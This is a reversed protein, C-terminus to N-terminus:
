LKLQLEKDLDENKLEEKGKTRETKISRFEIGDLKGENLIKQSRSM